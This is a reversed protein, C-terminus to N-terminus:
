KCEDEEHGQHIFYEYYPPINEYEVPQWIGITDDDNDYAIWVHRPRPKTFYIQMKDKAM